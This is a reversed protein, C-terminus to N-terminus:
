QEPHPAPALDTPIGREQRGVRGGPLRRWAPSCRCSSRGGTTRSDQRWPQYAFFGAYVVSLSVAVVYLIREEEDDAKKLVLPRCCLPGESYSRSLGRLRRAQFRRAHSCGGPSHPGAWHTECGLALEKRGPAVAVPALAHPIASDAPRSVVASVAAYEASSSPTAQEVKRAGEARGGDGADAALAQACRPRPSGASTLRGRLAQRVTPAVRRRLTPRVELELELELELLVYPRRERPSRRVSRVLFLVPVLRGELGEPRGVRALDSLGLGALAPRAQGPLVLRGGDRGGGTVEGVVRGAGGDVQLVDRVGAVKM